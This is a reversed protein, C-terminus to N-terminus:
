VEPLPRRAVLFAGAGIGLLAAALVAFHQAAGQVAQGGFVAHIALEATVFAGFAAILFLAIRARWWYALALGAVAAVVEAVDAAVVGRSETGKILLFGILWYAVLTLVNRGAIWLYRQMTKEENAAFAM